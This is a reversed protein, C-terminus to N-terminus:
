ELPGVERAGVEAHRDEGDEDDAQELPGVERAGVEAHRDEEDGSEAAAAENWHRGGVGGPMESSLSRCSLGEDVM